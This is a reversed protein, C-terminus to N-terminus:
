NLNCIVINEDWCRRLTKKFDVCDMEHKGLRSNSKQITLENDNCEMAIINRVIYYIGNVEYYGDTRVDAMTTYGYLCSALILCYKTLNKAVSIFNNM